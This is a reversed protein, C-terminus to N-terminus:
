QVSIGVVVMTFPNITVSQVKIENILGAENVLLDGVQELRYYAVDYTPNFFVLIQDYRHHYKNIDYLKYLLIHNPLDEFIVHDKIEQTTEFRFMPMKKRFEILDQTYAVVEQYRDKRLWDIQNILDSSRYSNHVGNKTRCFEQGSHIFPVGQAVMIAGIMLKHKKIRIERVDERCCEKIKDWSTHNDHCEVYNISKTPKDLLYVFDDNLTNGVLCMKMAHKYNVDGTCYGKVSVQDAPTKGKVHDRFFDNFFGINPMKEQNYMMAKLSDDLITPMNWGEGYLLADPKIKRIQQDILNMTDIDLIGMLDFRFGDIGYRKVWMLTSDVIYKRVMYRTSDIDNGCFSGNSVAGSDSRRFYYYPVIKEFSSQHMDYVHNYVVDMIVKLGNLHCASVLQKFELVRCCPDNPNTSFSGDPANYQMPDYGWNYFHEVNNEDVTAFDFIPMLQIHTVGLSCLYDFGTLTNHNTTTKPQIFGLFKGPYPNNGNPDMTFDRVSCEMIIADTPKKLPTLKDNHLDIECSDHDIVVSKTANSLASQGYPDISEIWKGNVYVLYTYIALHLNGEVECRFIGKAQRKMSKTILQGNFNIDVKVYVATPAWLTFITKNDKIVVGLDDKDYRFTQDFKDSKVILGIQLPTTLGHEELLDYGRGFEINECGTLIYKGYDNSTDEFYKIQLKTLEGLDDRLYFQESKGQYFQKSLYVTLLNYDDLHAEFREVKRM